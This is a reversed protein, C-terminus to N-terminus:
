EEDHNRIFTAMGDYIYPRESIITYDDDFIGKGNLSIDICKNSGLKCKMIQKSDRSIFLNRKFINGFILDRDSSYHRIASRGPIDRVDQNLIDIITKPLDMQTFTQKILLQQNQNPTIIILPIWNLALDHFLNSGEPQNIRSEDSTIIVITNKLYNNQELEEIFEAVSIDAYRVAREITNGADPQYNSPVTYPPHTSCTVVSAFWPEVNNERKKLQNLVYQYLSADDVGWGSSAISPANDDNASFAKDFGIVRAFDGALTYGLSASKFFYNKYGIETLRQPLCKTELISPDTIVKITKSSHDSFNPYQGCLAAFLGRNTQQQLSIFQKYSIHKKSLKALNPALGTELYQQSLSEVFILLINPSKTNSRNIQSIPEGLELDNKPLQRSPMAAHATNTLWLYNRTTYFATAINEEFFNQQSWTEYDLKIPISILLIVAIPVPALVWYHSNAFSSRQLILRYIVVFSAVPVIILVLAKLFRLDMISGLIFAEDMAFDGLYISLNSANYYIHLTNFAYLFVIVGMLLWRLRTAVLSVLMALMSSIALDSIVGRFLVTANQEMYSLFTELFDHLYIGGVQNHMKLM